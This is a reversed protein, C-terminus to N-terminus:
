AISCPPFSIASTASRMAGGDEAAVELGHLTEVDLVVEERALALDEVEMEPVSRALQHDFSANEVQFGFALVFAAPDHAACGRGAGSAAASALRIFVSLDDDSGVAGDGVDALVDGVVQPLKAEEGALVEAVFLKM